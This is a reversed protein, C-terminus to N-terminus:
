GERVFSYCGKRKQNNKGKKATLGKKRPTSPPHKPTDAAQQPRRQKKESWQQPKIRLHTKKEGHGKDTKKGQKGETTPVLVTVKVRWHVYGPARNTDRKQTKKKKKGNSKRGRRKKKYEMKPRTALMNSKEEDKPGKEWEM